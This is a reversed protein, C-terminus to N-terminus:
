RLALIRVSFCNVSFSISNAQGSQNGNCATFETGGSAGEGGYHPSDSDFIVHWLGPHPCGWDL